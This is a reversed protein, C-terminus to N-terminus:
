RPQNELTKGKVNPAAETDFYRCRLLPNDVSRRLRV